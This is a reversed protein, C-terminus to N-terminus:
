HENILLFFVIFVPLSSYYLRFLCGKNNNSKLHKIKRSFLLKVGGQRQNSEELLLGRLTKSRWM